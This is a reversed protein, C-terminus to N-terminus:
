LRISMRESQPLGKDEMNWRLIMRQLQLITYDVDFDLYIKREHELVYYSIADPEPLVGPAPMMELVHQALEKLIHESM